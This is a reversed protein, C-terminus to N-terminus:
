EQLNYLWQKQLLSLSALIFIDNVNTYCMGKNKIIHSKIVPHIMTHYMTMILHKYTIWTVTM